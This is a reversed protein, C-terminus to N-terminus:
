EEDRREVAGVDREWVGGYKALECMECMLSGDERKGVFVGCDVCYGTERGVGDRGRRTRVERARGRRKKM